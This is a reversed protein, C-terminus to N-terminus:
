ETSGDLASGLRGLALTLMTCCRRAEPSLLAWPQLTLLLDTASEAAGTAAAHIFETDVDTEV